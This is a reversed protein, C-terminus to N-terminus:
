GTGPAKPSPRRNDCRGRHTFPASPGGDSIADAPPWTAWRRGARRCWHPSESGASDRAEWGPACRQARGPRGGDLRKPGTVGSQEPRTHRQASQAGAESAPGGRPLRLCRTAGARESAKACPLGEGTGGRRQGQPRPVGKELRTHGEQESLCHTTVNGDALARPSSYHGPCRTVDFNLTTVLGLPLPRSHKELQFSAKTVNVVPRSVADPRGLTWGRCGANGPPPRDLERRKFDGGLTGRLGPVLGHGAPGGGPQRGGAHWGRGPAPGPSGLRTRM